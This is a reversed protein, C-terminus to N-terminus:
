IRRLWEVYQTYKNTLTYKGQWRFVLRQIDKKSSISLTKREKGIDRLRPSRELVNPGFELRRKIIELAERDTHEIFFNCKSKNIYFCGEGNIFGIIWNDIDYPAKM